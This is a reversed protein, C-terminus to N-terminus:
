ATLVLACLRLILNFCARIDRAKPERELRYASGRVASQIIAKFSIVGQLCWKRVFSNIISLWGVLPYDMFALGFSLSAISTFIDGHPCAFWLSDNLIAPVRTPVILRANQWYAPIWSDWECDLLRPKTGKPPYFLRRPDVAGKRTLSPGFEGIHIEEVGWKRPDAEPEWKMPIGYIARLFCFRLMKLCHEPVNVFVIYTNDKYRTLLVGM